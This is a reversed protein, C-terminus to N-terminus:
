IIRKLVQENIWNTRAAIDMMFFHERDVPYPIRHKHQRERSWYELYLYDKLIQPSDDLFVDFAEYFYDHIEDQIKNKLKEM